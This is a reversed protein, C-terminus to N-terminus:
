VTCIRVPHPSEGGVGPNAGARARSSVAILGLILLLFAFWVLAAVVDPLRFSKPYM